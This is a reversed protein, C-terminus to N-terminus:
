YANRGLAVGPDIKKTTTFTVPLKGTSLCRADGREGMALVLPIARTSAANSRASFAVSTRCSMNTCMGLVPPVDISATSRAGCTRSLGATISFHASCHARWWWM